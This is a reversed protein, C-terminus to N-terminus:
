RRRARRGEMLASTGTRSTQLGGDGVYVLARRAAGRSGLERCGETLSDFAYKGGAAAIMRLKSDTAAIDAGFESVKAPATSWLAIGSGAPLTKWFDIVAPVLESRYAAALAASSDIVLAVDLPRKAREVGSVSRKRGGESLVIDEPKLDEVPVAKKTYVSLTVSRTLPVTAGSASSALAAVLLVWEM